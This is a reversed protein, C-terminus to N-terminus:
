LPPEWRRCASSVTTPAYRDVRLLAELAGGFYGHLASWHCSCLLATRPDHVWRNARVHQSIRRLGILLARLGGHRWELIAESHGQAAYRARMWDASLRETRIEHQVRAEPMYLIRAGARELRLCFEIEECSRLVAAKRGLDTSFLGYREFAERRFAMNTGRPYENYTLGVIAPGKDFVTLYPLYRESFWPPLESSFLPEVPGGAALVNQSALAEALAELWGPMPSADDDLFAILDGTAAHVGANRAASLGLCSERILRVRRPYLAHLKSVVRVTDDTSGNDVVVLEWDGGDQTDLLL